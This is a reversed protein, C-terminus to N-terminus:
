NFSNLIENSQKKGLDLNQCLQPHHTWSYQTTTTPAPTTTEQFYFTLFQKLQVILLVFIQFFFIELWLDYIDKQSVEVTKLQSNRIM